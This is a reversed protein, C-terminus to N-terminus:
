LRSCLGQGELSLWDGSLPAPFGMIAELSLGGVCSVLGGQQQILYIQNKIKNELQSNIKLYTAGKCPAKSTQPVSVRSCIDLLFYPHTQYYIFCNWKM